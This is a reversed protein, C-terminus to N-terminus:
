RTGYRPIGDLCFLLVSTSVGFLAFLKTNTYLQVILLLSCGISHVSLVNHPLIPYLPFHVKRQLPCPRSWLRCFCKKANRRQMIKPAHVFPLASLRLRRAIHVAATAMAVPKTSTIGAWSPHKFLRCFNLCPLGGCTFAVCFDWILGTGVGVTGGGEKDLCRYIVLFQRFWRKVQTRNAQMLPPYWLKGQFVRAFGGGGRRLPSVMVQRGGGWQPPRPSRASRSSIELPPRTGFTTSSVECASPSYKNAIRLVLTDPQVCPVCHFSNFFAGGFDVNCFHVSGVGLTAQVHTNSPCLHPPYSTCPRLLGPEFLSSQMTLQHLFRPYLASIDGFDSSHPNLQAFM